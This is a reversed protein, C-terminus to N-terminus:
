SSIGGECAFEDQHTCTMLPKPDFLEEEQIQPPEYPKRSKPVDEKKNETM